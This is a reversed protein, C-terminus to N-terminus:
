LLLFCEGPALLLGMNFAPLYLMTLIRRSTSVPPVVDYLEIYFNLNFFFPFCAVDMLAPICDSGMIEKMNYLCTRCGYFLTSYALHAAKVTIIVDRRLGEYTYARTYNFAIRLQALGKKKFSRSALATRHGYLCFSTFM